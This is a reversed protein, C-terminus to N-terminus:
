GQRRLRRRIAAVGLASAGLLSLVMTSPEPTSKVDGTSGSTGSGDASVVSIFGGVSAPLSGLNGVIVHPDLTVTYENGAITKTQSVLATDSFLGTVPDQLQHVIQAGTTASFTGSFNGNFTFTKVQGSNVDKVNVDVSYTAHDATYHDTGTSISGLVTTAVIGSPGPGTTPASEVTQSTLILGGSGPAEPSVALPTAHTTYTWTAEAHALGACALWALGAIWLRTLLRKM